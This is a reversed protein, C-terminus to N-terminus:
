RKWKGTDLRWEVYWAGYGMDMKWKGNEVMEQGTDMGMDWRRVGKRAELGNRDREMVSGLKGMMWKDVEWRERVLKKPWQRLGKGKIEM